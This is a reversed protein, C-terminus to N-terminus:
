ATAKARRKTPKPTAAQEARIRDLLVSAPEDTPDQPVLRGEFASKLVSRRLAASVKLGADVSRECGEIFSMQREVESVIRTQEACPPIPFEIPKLRIAPLHAINTTIRSERTFRGSRLYHLFVVLAWESSVAAGPRFRLLSKTFAAGEPVGRFVAPRGLLEPTQGENLLVDGPLLRYREYVPPDFHMEHVDSTDIRGELVNAVRLYPKMNPGTHWDPHRMRGLDVRGAGAVTTWAWGDPTSAPDEQELSEIGLEALLKTASTDTPDQPVLRGTVAATLVADSMRRLIQRVARLGAEGADLKSFAEDVAAVIRAQEATPPIPARWGALGSAGLHHIGVGRSGAAFRGNLAQERFYHEYFDPLLGVPLRVRILTNQFCCGEIEGQYQAPKGVEGPSGSAESLLLDGPRLEYTESESATFDMEKVDSLRLGSWTVNAARLYPRMRDGTARKPSRQRGLRVEAVDALRTSEWGTPLDSM